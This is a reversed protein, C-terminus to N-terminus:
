RPKPADTRRLVRILWRTTISAGTVLGKCLPVLLPILFAKVVFGGVVAITVHEQGHGVWHLLRYVAYSVGGLPLAAAIILAVYRLLGPTGVFGTWETVFGVVPAVLFLYLCWGLFRTLFALLVAVSIDMADQYGTNALGVLQMLSPAIFAGLVLGALAWAWGTLWEALWDALYWISVGAWRTRGAGVPPPLGASPRLDQLRWPPVMLGMSAMRWVRRWPYRKWKPGLEPGITRM